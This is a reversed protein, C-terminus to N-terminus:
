QYKYFPTKTFEIKGDWDNLLQIATQRETCEWQQVGDVIFKYPFPNNNKFVIKALQNNVIRQINM